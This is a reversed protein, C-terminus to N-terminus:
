CVEAEEGAKYENYLGYFCKWTLYFFIVLNGVALGYHSVQGWGLYSQGNCQMSLAILVVAPLWLKKNFLACLPLVLETVYNYREHMCPLLMCCAFATWAIYDLYNKMTHKRGSQVFLVAFMLLAMFMVAIAVKGFLYYDPEKFFTWINPYFYYMFPYKGLMHSFLRYAIDFSCGGIIAPICLAQIAVPIWLLHLISFKKKYFYVIMVLPLLFVSQLKMAIGFGMAWMGRVPKEQWIYWFSLLAFYSWISESQALYGSNVVVLPNCLALAYAIVGYLNKRKEDECATMVMKMLLGAQLYDFIISFMKISVIPRVPILTLFYLVTAYPLNYDGVYDALAALSGGEKLQNYWTLLSNLYDVGEYEIGMWRLAMALVSVIGIWIWFTKKNMEKMM